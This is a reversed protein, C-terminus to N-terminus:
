YSYYKMKGIKKSTSNLMTKSMLSSNTTQLVLYECSILLPCSLLFIVM